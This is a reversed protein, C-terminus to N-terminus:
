CACLTEVHTTANLTEQESPWLRPATYWGDIIATCSSEPTVISAYPNGTLAYCYLALGTFMAIFALCYVIIQALALSWDPGVKPRHPLHGFTLQKDVCLM